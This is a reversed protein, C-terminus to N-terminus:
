PPSTTNKAATRKGRRAAKKPKTETDTAETETETLQTEPVVSKTEPVSAETESDDEVSQPMEDTVDTIGHKELNLTPYQGAM